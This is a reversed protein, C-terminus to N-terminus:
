DKIGNKVFNLFRFIRHSPLGYLPWDPGAGWDPCFPSGPLCFFDQIIARSMALYICSTVFFTSVAVVITERVGREMLIISLREITMTMIVMPFLAVAM